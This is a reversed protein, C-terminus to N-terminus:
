EWEELSYHPALSGGLEEWVSEGNDYLVCYAGTEVDCAVVCGAFICDEGYGRGSQYPWYVRIRHGVLQLGLENPRPGVVGAQVM